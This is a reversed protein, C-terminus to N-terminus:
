LNAYLPGVEVHQQRAYKLCERALNVRQNMIPLLDQRRAELRNRQDELIAVREMTAPDREERRFSMIKGAELGLRAKNLAERVEEAEDGMARAKAQADKGQDLIAFLRDRDIEAPM